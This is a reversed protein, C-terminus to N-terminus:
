KQNLIKEFQKLEYIMKEPYFELADLISKRDIQFYKAYETILNDSVNLKKEKIEQTKKVGKTYIWGPVFKYQKRLFRQWFDIVAAQNIKIHQLANAQLPFNIAFRRNIIFYNKQKEGRTIEKYKEPNTFIIKILDFLEIM